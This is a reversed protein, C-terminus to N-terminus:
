KNPTSYQLSLNIESREPTEKMFPMLLKIIGLKKEKKAQSFPTQDWRDCINVKAGSQILIEVIDKHGANVAVWLPTRDNLFNRAEINAGRSILLRVTEEHGKEAAWHLPTEGHYHHIANVNAGNNLLLMIDEICGSEAAEHLPAHLKYSTLM